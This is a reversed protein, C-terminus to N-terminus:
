HLVSRYSWRLSGLSPRHLSVMAPYRTHSSITYSKSNALIITMLSLMIRMVEGSNASKLRLNFFRSVLTHRGNGIMRGGAFVPSIPIPHVFARKTVTGSKTDCDPRQRQARDGPELTRVRRSGRASRTRRWRSQLHSIRPKSIRLASRSNVTERRTCISLSTM